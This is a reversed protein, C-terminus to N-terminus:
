IKIMILKILCCLLNGLSYIEIYKHRKTYILYLMHVLNLNIIILKYLVHPLECLPKDILESIKLNLLAM